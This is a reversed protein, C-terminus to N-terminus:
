AWHLLVQRKSHVNGARLVSPGKDAPLRQHQQLTLLLLQVWCFELLPLLASAMVWNFSEPSNWPTSHLSEAQFKSLTSTSGGRGQFFTAHSKKVRIKSGYSATAFNGNIDLNKYLKCRGPIRVDEPLAPILGWQGPEWNEIESVWEMVPGVSSGGGSLSM